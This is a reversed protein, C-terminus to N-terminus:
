PISGSAGIDVASGGQTDLASSGGSSSAALPSNNVVPSVQQGPPSSLPGSTLPTADRTALQGGPQAAMHSLRGQAQAGDVGSTETPM